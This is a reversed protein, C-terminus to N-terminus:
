IRIGLWETKSLPNPKLEPIEEILIQTIQSIDDIIEKETIPNAHGDIKYTGVYEVELEYLTGPNGQCYDFSIHYIRNQPTDIWFAKRTRFLEGELKEQFIKSDINHYGTKEETRKVICNLGLPDQIIEDKGKTVIQMKNGRFMAKLLKNNKDSYYRNLSAGEMTFPFHFPLHFKGNGNRFIEKAKKLTNESDTTLKAEIECWKFNKVLKKGFTKTLYAGILDHGRMKKSVIPIANLENIINEIKAKLAHNSSNDKLEM